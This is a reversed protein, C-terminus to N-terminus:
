APNIGARIVADRASEVSLTITDEDLGPVAKEMVNIGKSIAGGDEKWVSAIEDVTVRFRPVYSGYGIIGIDDM